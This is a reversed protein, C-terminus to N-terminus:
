GLAAAQLAVPEDALAEARLGRWRGPAIGSWRRFAHVFASPSAFGAAMAVEGVPLATLNLLERAVAFRVGEKIAEFSTGERRLGRRLTRPTTRLQRAVETMTSRGEHLMLVRVTHAVLGALGPATGARAPALAAFARAHAEPDATALPFQLAEHTLVVCTEPQGFRVPCGALRQWPGADAPQPRVTLLEVPRVSAETLERIMSCGVALSVDHVQPSIVGAADYVGYGLLVEQGARRLYVASGTSNGIQCAVFAALAVGLTPATRMLREVPGLAAVGRRLGLALGFAERGTLSAARELIALAAAYPIFADPRLDGPRVGTGALVRGLPVGCEELLRPLHTLAAARQMPVRGAQRGFMEPEKGAM